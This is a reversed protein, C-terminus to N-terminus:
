RSRDIIAHCRLSNSRATIETAAAGPCIQVHTDLASTRARILSRIKAWRRMGSSTCTLRGSTASDCSRIAAAKTGSGGRISLRAIQDTRCNKHVTGLNCRLNAWTERLLRLEITKVPGSASSSVREGAVHNVGLTKPPRVNSWRASSQTKSPKVQSFCGENM